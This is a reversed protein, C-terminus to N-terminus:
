IKLGAKRAAEAIAKVRGHFKYAGRDFVATKIKLELAKQAVLEGLLEAQKIKNKAEKASIEKTSASALTKKEQDDILQVYSYRNSRFVSLRPKEATGFIKARTRSKRRQILNLHSKTKSM